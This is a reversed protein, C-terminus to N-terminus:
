ILEIAKIAHALGAKYRKELREYHSLSCVYQDNSPELRVAEALADIAQSNAGQKGLGEADAYLQAGRSQGLASAPCLWVALITM